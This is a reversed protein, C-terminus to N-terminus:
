EFALAPLIKGVEGKILNKILGIIKVMNIHATDMIFNFFHCSVINTWNMLRFWPAIGGRGNSALIFHGFFGIVVAM